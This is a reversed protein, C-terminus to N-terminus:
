VSLIAEEKKAASEEGKKIHADTLKQVEDQASKVEDESVGDLKKLEDNSDRRVNRVSIKADELRKHVQKVLEKRREMSLEPLILRIVNGDNQPTLGLDSKLIAKEIDGMSGKDFPQIILMRPEPANVTALQNLATDAGYYEVTIHDLMSPTARTSRINALDRVLSDISKQMREEAELLIMETSNDDNDAM